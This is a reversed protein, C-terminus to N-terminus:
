HSISSLFEEVKSRITDRVRRFVDMGQGIPDEIEWDIKEKTPVVPCTESCGMTVVYDFKKAPVQNFGKSYQSSIDIGAEKMVAIADPHVFGAPKTGASYIEFKDGAIKKAFGEAMQSRCCNGICAFLIAKKAM